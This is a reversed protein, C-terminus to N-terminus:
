IKYTFSGTKVINFLANSTILHVDSGVHAIDRAKSQQNTPYCDVHHVKYKSTSLCSELDANWSFNLVPVGQISWINNFGEFWMLVNMSMNLQLIM